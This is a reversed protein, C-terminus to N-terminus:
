KYTITSNAKASIPVAQGMLQFSGSIDAQTTKKKVLGTEIDTIIEGTTKTTSNFEVEMGQTSLTSAADMVMNLQIVAEKGTVSKLTYTRVVKMNKEVTSDSWNDGTNKGQPVIEFAGTVVADDGGNDGMIKLLGQMPDGDVPNKKEEIKKEVSAKGTNIDLIVDTPKNLKEAFAKGMESEQDEKKESDYTTAQGMMDMNVKIKTLTSGITYNKDTSSKVELINESTSNNTVDMGPALSSEISISSQVTIKQGVTLSIKNPVVTKIVQTQAHLLTTVLIVPLFSAIKKM